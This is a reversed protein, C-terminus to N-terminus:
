QQRFAQPTMGTSKLFARHFQSTSSFGLDASIRGVTERTRRLRNMAEDMRLKLLYQYPTVGTAERFSRIFHYRSRLAIGALEDVSLARDYCDHLYALAERMHPDAIGKPPVSRAGEPAAGVLGGMYALVDHEVDQVALPDALAQGQMLATMWRRFRGALEDPDFPRRIDHSEGGAFRPRVAEMGGAGRERVKVIIVSTGSGLRFHHNAGPPQILGSGEGLAYSRNEQTFACTGKVPLTAQMWHDHRHSDNKFSESGQWLEIWQTEAKMEM